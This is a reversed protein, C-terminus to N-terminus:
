QNGGTFKFKNKKLNFLKLQLDINVTEEQKTQQADLVSNGDPKFTKFGDIPETEIIKQVVMLKPANKFKSIDMEIGNCLFVGNQLSAAVQKEQQIENAFGLEYADNASLWTEEDMMKKIKKEELGTKELYVAIISETIKELDDAVKRFDDANGYAFTWANHIMMMANIPMYVNDGAMAIITAASAALGDIYTNVKCQKRKLMSYIAQAAFVDGGTSNIYINLTQIEGLADLDKKFQKPTIEDNTSWWGFESEITGYIM